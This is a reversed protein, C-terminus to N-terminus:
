VFAGAVPNGAKDVIRGRLTHGRELKFEIPAMGKQPLPQELEPAFGRAQVTLVMQEPRVNKFEFRGDKDTTTDPYHSGFRDSGQAVTAGEIPKGDMDVVRGAVTVGRKMVMVGTQSRLSEIPPAPTKGFMEDSIYDPHSLRFVVENLRAPMIDCRWRGEADTKEPHDWISVREVQSSGDSPVLLSVTAGEITKGEEDRVVGGIITGPEMALTYEAPVQLPTGRARWGAILPVLGEKSAKM